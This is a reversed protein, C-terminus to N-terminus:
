DRFLFLANFLLYSFICYGRVTFQSEVVLHRSAAPLLSRMACFAATAGGFMTLHHVFPVTLEMFYREVLKAVEPATFSFEVIDDVIAQLLYVASYDSNKVIAGYRSFLCWSSILRVPLYLISSHYRTSIEFASRVKTGVVAGVNAAVFLM